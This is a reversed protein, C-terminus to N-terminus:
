AARRKARRIIIRAVLLFLPFLILLLVLLLFYPLLRWNGIRPLGLAEAYRLLTRSPTERWWATVRDVLGVIWRRM